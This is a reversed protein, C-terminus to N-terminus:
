GESLSAFYLFEKDLKDVELLVRGTKEDYYFNFFGEYKKMGQTASAISTAPAAARQGSAGGQNQAFGPTGTALLAALAYFRLKM